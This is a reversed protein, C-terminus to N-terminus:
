KLALPEILLQEGQLRVTTPKGRVGAPFDQEATRYIGAIAVLEPEFSTCFVRAATNGRAGALARGRLAGYIHVHGEAMVEAGHSVVGQVILDGPSYIRQGSRLPRDILVTPLTAPAPEQAPTAAPVSPQAAAQTEASSAAAAAAALATAAEAAEASEAPKRPDRGVDRSDLLPLDSAGAWTQQAAQAVVGFPRMKFRRLLAALEDLPLTADEALRRLDIAVAEGSFFEPAADFRQQLAEALAAFDPTKVVLHVADIAGSRLEFLTAKSRSM